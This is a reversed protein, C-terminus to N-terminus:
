RSGSGAARCSRSPRTRRRGWRPHRAFPRASPSRRSGRCGPCASRSPARRRYRVGLGSRRASDHFHVRRHWSALWPSTGLRRSRCFDRAGCGSSTRRLRIGHPTARPPTYGARPPDIVAAAQGRNGAGLFDAAAELAKASLLPRRADGYRDAATLLLAADRRLLGRCYLANAQRHPIKSGAAVAEAQVALARATDIDGTGAALRVADPFLDEIEDLEEANEAFGALLEALAGAPTGEHERDLSRALIFPGIVQTGIREAMPVATALNRRAAAIQGRHFCIVAAIGLDLCAEMPAKVEENLAKVESMAEDWRGIDFLLEGLSSHAQVLRLMTGTQDALHLAQRAAGIAEAYRDLNGLSVAKNIQLLLRLDTLAVEAETVALAREFLPLADAGRGQVGTGIRPVHLAWGVARTGGAASAVQLATTAVRGAKGPNGFCCHARAALALLRARHGASIDPSALAQDLGALSEAFRG